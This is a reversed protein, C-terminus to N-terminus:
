DYQQLIEYGVLQGMTFDDQGSSRHDLDDPNKEAAVAARVDVDFVRHGVGVDVCFVNRGESSEERFEISNKRWHRYRSM